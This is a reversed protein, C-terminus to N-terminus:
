PTVVVPTGVRVRRMLDIIDENHMRICGYSVFGGISKPKNTGHIAYSGGALTLAAAGMPNSPSGSPIVAPLGPRERRISAPPAWNPRVFKGDIASEGAWQSGKRGVGVVYRIARSDGLVLYLRRESTRVVITGSKVKEHFAVPVGASAAPVRGISLAVGCVGVLFLAGFCHRVKRM